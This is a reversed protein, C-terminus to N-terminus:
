VAEVAAVLEDVDFPKALKYGVNDPLKDLIHELATCIIRKVGPCNDMLWEAIYLGNRNSGALMLDIIAVDWNKWFAEEFLFDQVKFVPFVEHGAMVLTRVELASIDTNDEILVIRKM